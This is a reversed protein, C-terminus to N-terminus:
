IGEEVFIYGKHGHLCFFAKDRSGGCIHSGIDKSVSSHGFALGILRM